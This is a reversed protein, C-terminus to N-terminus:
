KNAEKSEIENENASDNPIQNTNTNMEAILPKSKTRITQEAIKGLFKKNKLIKCDLINTVQNIKLIQLM